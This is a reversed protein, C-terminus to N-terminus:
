QLTQLALKAAHVKASHKQMALPAQTPLTRGLASGQFFDDIQTGATHAYKARMDTEVHVLPVDVNM